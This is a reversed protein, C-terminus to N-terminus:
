FGVNDRDEDITRFLTFKDDWGLDVSGTPGHRNKSVIVEVKDVQKVDMDEENESGDAYYDERFLMLVIDADQEISGSERLDSLQPRHSKSGRETGRSLQALVMVPVELDKAMLKLNRTIESVEQVRSDTKTGSKMLQLYDVIVCEVNHLRRIRAKMENVTIDSKDDLYLPATSLSETAVALREWDKDELKGNRMKVGEIRAEMSVVRQALQEKSMELSFFLVKRGSNVAVNRAVNLAFSTKGMAPRAGVIILDSRNLGSIMSDLKSFGTPVGLYKEREDSNLKALRDYVKDVIVEGVRSAEASSKGQRIDYIKQEASDLLLDADEEEGTVEGLIENCREILTRKMFKDKVIKAYSEVNATSPIANALQALYTRAAKEDMINGAKLQEMVLVPDTSEGNADLRLLANYIAKHQPMFFYETSFGRSLILELCAHDTLLCGLLAQEAEASYPMNANGTYVTDPM